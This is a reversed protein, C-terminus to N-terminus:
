MIGMPFGFLEDAMKKQENSLSAYLPDFAAKLTRVAELRASLMREYRDLRATASQASTQTVQGQGMMEQQMGQMSQGTSRVADALKNWQPEQESNIKLEAKLFALRGEIHDFPMGGMMGGGQAMSMMSLVRAMNSGMMGGGSQADPRGHMMGMNGGEESQSGTTQVAGQDGGPHHASQDQESHPIAPATQAWVSTAPATLLLSLSIAAPISLSPRMPKEEQPYYVPLPRYHRLFHHVPLIIRSNRFVKM